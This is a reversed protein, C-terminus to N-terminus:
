EDELCSWSAEQCVKHVGQQRVGLAGELGMDTVYFAEIGSEARPDDRQRTSSTRQRAPDLGEMLCHIPDFGHAIETCRM